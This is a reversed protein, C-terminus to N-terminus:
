FVILEVMLELDTDVLRDRSTKFSVTISKNIIM